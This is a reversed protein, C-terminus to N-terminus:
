AKKYLEIIKNTQRLTNGSKRQLQKERFRGNRVILHSWTKRTKKTLRYLKNFKDDTLLDNNKDM